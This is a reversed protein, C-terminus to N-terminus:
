VANDSIKKMNKETPSWLRESKGHETVNLHREITESGSYHKKDDFIIGYQGDRYYGLQAIEKNASDIVSVLGHRIEIREKFKVEKIEYNLPEKRETRTNVDFTKSEKNGPNTIIYGDTTLVATKVPRGNVFRCKEKLDAISYCIVLGDDAYSFFVGTSPIIGNVQDTHDENIIKKVNNKSFVIMTPKTSASANNNSYDYVSVYVGDAVVVGQKAPRLEPSRFSLKSSKDIIPAPTTAQTPQPEKQPEPPKDPKKDPKEMDEVSKRILRIVAEHDLPDSEIEMDGASLSFLWKGDKEVLKGLILTDVNMKNLMVQGTEDSVAENPQIKMDKLVPLVGKVLNLVIIQSNAQIFAGEYMMISLTLAKEIFSATYKKDGWETYMINTPDIHFEIPGTALLTNPTILPIIKLLVPKIYGQFGDPEQAAFVTNLTILMLVGILFAKRKKM